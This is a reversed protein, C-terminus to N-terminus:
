PEWNLDDVIAFTGAFIAPHIGIFDYAFSQPQPDQSRVESWLLDILEDAASLAGPRLVRAALARQRQVDGVFQTAAEAKCEIPNIVTM